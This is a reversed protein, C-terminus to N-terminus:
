IEAFVYEWYEKESSPQCLSEGHMPGLRIEWWEGVIFEFCNLMRVGIINQIYANAEM